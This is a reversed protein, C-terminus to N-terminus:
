ASVAWFSICFTDIPNPFMRGFIKMRKSRRVRGFKVGNPIGKVEGVIEPKTGSGTHTIAVRYGDKSNLYDFDLRISNESILATANNSSRTSSEIEAHLLEGDSLVIRPPDITLLQDRSITEDGSNWIIIRSVYVRDVEVGDVLVQLGTKESLAGRNVIPQLLTVYNLKRRRRQLFYILIALGIAILGIINGWM